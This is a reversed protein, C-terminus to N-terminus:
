TIVFNDNQVTINFITGKPHKKDLLIDALKNEIRDRRIKSMGRAGEITATSLMSLLELADEDWSLDFQQKSLKNALFIMELEAIKKYDTVSLNNFIIIDDIRNIFEPKFFKHIADSTEREIMSRSPVKTAKYQNEILGTFGASRDYTQQAVKDNGLNSTIIIITNRFSVRKGKNDTLFGDDFVKLFTNWFDPHAKEAEDILLVTNPNAAIAKTM